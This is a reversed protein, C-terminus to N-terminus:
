PADKGVLKAYWGPHHFRAWARTVTGRTMARISGKTWYAAYVHIGIGVFMVFAMAAHLEVNKELEIVNVGMSSAIAATNDTSGDSVVVIRNVAKVQEIVRLVDAISKEENYAPIIATVELSEEQLLYCRSISLVLYKMM